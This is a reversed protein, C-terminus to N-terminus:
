LLTSLFPHFILGTTLHPSLDPLFNLVVCNLNYVTPRYQPTPVSALALECKWPCWLFEARLVDKQDFEDIGLELIAAREGTHNPQSYM